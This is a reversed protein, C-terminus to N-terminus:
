AVGNIFKFIEEGVEIKTADIDNARQRAQKVARALADIRELRRQKDIKTLMGTRITTEWEGVRIDETYPQVQAPHEETAEYMVIAKPVKQTRYSVRTESVFEGDKENYTWREAPDLTPITSYVRRIEQLRAELNLLAPAPLKGITVGNLEVDAVTNTNTVEKQIAADMWKAMSKAFGALEGDVTTGLEKIEDAFDDGGEELPRYVRIQGVLRDAGEKFLAIVDNVTRTAAAKLDPEVALLEHLKGM